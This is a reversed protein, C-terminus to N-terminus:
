HLTDILQLTQEPNAILLRTGPAMSVSPGGAEGYADSGGLRWGDGGRGPHVELAPTRELVKFRLLIASGFEFGGPFIGLRTYFSGYPPEGPYRFATIYDGPAVLVRCVPLHLDMARLHAMANGPTLDPLYISLFRLARELHERVAPCDPAGLATLWPELRERSLPDTLSPVGPAPSYEM